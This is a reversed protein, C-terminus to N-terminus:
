WGQSRLFVELTLLAWLAHGHSQGKQHEDWVRLLEGPDLYEGVRADRSLLRGEVYSRLDDRFWRDLPIGFGWKGRRMTEEPLLDGVAANLVRKRSMGGARYSPPLRFVLELLDTDLLPSRVELAHAMSMRDMKPLLDDLLYTRLNLHLLRDPLDAGETEAWIERFRERGWAAPESVLADVRADPLYSTWARFGDPMGLEARALARQISGARGGFGTAPVAEAAARTARRLPEPLRAFRDLVEAVRFREYGAFVEDGGDGNLAVTVHKRTLESLLYTPIASSDGFPQDHHFVLRDILDVADPRVVFESHDTGFRRAVARAYPREDFGQDDEFGITFTRVPEDTLGAMLGVVTSSDIGGSLFAGIPVDAILRKAVARELTSRVERAAETPTLDLRTVGDVGPVPPSWYPVERILGEPPVVLVHGASVSRIGEFFTRPTPVYGFGLFAPIAQPDLRRPVKPHALVSKIESGFVVRGDGAWYYLPKKGLRDRGLVVAGDRRGVAFSFMGDLERALEVPGRTEALHAIVETDGSTSFTHGGAVLRERLQRFNYIEGNLVVGVSGDENTIPPDGTALDVVRLRDVGLTAAPTAYLGWSDPGRHDITRLQGTVAASRDNEAAQVVGAIGCM